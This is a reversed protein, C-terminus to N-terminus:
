HSTSGTAGPVVQGLHWALLLQQERSAILRRRTSAVVLGTMLVTALGMVFLAVTTPVPPFSVLVPHLVLADGRPEEIMPLVGLLEALFPVVVPLCGLGVIVRADGGGGLLFMMTSVAALGPIIVFPGMVTALLILVTSSMMVVVVPVSPTARMRKARSRETDASYALSGVLSLLLLGAAVGFVLWNRVGMWLVMGLFALAVMRTYAGYRAMLRSSEVDEEHVRRAIEPPVVKPPELLLQTLVTLAGRHDPDFALARGAERAARSRAELDTAASELEVRAQEAHAEALVQRRQQDRDGDIYRELEGILERV